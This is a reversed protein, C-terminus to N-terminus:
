DPLEWHVVEPVGPGVTLRVERLSPDGRPVEFVVFGRSTRGAGIDDDLTLVRGASVRTFRVEHGLVTGAGDVLAASTSLQPSWTSEGANHIKLPVAMLMRGPTPRQGRTLSRTPVPTGATVDLAPRSPGKVTIPKGIAGEPRGLRDLTSTGLDGLRQPGGGLFFGGLLVAVVGSALLSRAASPPAMRARRRPRRPGSPRHPPTRRASRRTGPAPDREAYFAQGLAEAADPVSREELVEPRSRLMTALNGSSCVMVEGVWGFVPEARTLCLVPRITDRDLRPLLSAVTDAAQLAVDVPKAQRRGHHRLVAKDPPGAVDVAGTWTLTHVVFVGQPGVAVHDIGVFHKGAWHVHHFVRWDDAPLSGLAPAVPTRGFASERVSGGGM